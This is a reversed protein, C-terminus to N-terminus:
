KPECQTNGLSASVEVNEAYIDINKTINLACGSLLFCMAVMLAKM